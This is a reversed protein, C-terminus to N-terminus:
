VHLRYPMACSSYQVLGCTRLPLANCLYHQVHCPSCVQSQHLPSVAESHSAAKMCADLPARLHTAIDSFSGQILEEGRQMICLKTESDYM